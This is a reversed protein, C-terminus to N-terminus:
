QQRPPNSCKPNRRDKLTPPRLWHGPQQGRGTSIDNVERPKPWSVDPLGTETARFPGDDGFRKGMETNDGM